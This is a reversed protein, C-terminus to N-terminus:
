PSRCYSFVEASSVGRVGTGVLISTRLVVPVCVFVPSPADSNEARQLASPGAGVGQKIGGVWGWRQMGRGVCCCVCQCVSVSVGGLQM